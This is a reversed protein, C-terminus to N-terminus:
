TKNSFFVPSLFSAAVMALILILFVGFKWYLDSFSFKEAYDNGPTESKKSM